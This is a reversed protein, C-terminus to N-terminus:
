KKLNLTMKAVVTEKVQDGDFDIKDSRENFLSVSNSTISKFEFEIEDVTGEDILLKKGDSSLKWKGEVPDEGTEKEIYTHNSKLEITMDSETEMAEEFAEKQISAEEESLELVEIMYDIIDQGNVTFDVESSQMTWTGVLDAETAITKVDDDESCGMFGALAFLTLLSYFIRNMSKM